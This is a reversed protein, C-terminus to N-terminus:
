IDRQGLISIRTRKAYCKDVSIVSNCAQTGYGFIGRRVASVRFTDPHGCLLQLTADMRLQLLGISLCSKLRTRLYTFKLEDLENVYKIKLFCGM